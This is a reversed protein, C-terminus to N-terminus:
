SQKSPLFSFLFARCPFIIDQLLKISFSFHYFYLTEVSVAEECFFVFLLSPNHDLQWLLQLKTLIRTHTYCSEVYHAWHRLCQVYVNGHQHNVKVDTCIMTNLACVHTQLPFQLVIYQYIKNYYCQQM